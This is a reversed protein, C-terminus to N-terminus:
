DIYMNHQFYFQYWLHSNEDSTIQHLYFIGLFSIITVLLVILNKQTKHKYLYYCFYALIISQFIYFYRFPRTFSVAGSPFMYLSIVGIFFFFYIINFWRSNYYKKLEKSYLIIIVNMIIKWIYALGTGTAENFSELLADINYSREYLDSGLISIYFDIVSDFNMIIDFFLERIVFALTLLILQLPISKFYDKGSVLIPYFVFLVIASRHFLFAIVGYLIYKWIKRDVIFNLSYIWICMAIAQRIGNMWFWIEGNTFLFFTLLPFLYVEKKFAYFFFFVQIFALITFYIVYHLNFHHSLNTILQFLFENKSVDENWVYADLYGLYDVGVDYRMGFIISFLFIPILIQYSKFSITQNTNNSYNLAKKKYSALYFFFMMTGLLTTYVLLSQIM